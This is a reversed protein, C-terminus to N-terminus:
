VYGFYNKELGSIVRESRRRTELVSVRAGIRFYWQLAVTVLEYYGPFEETCVTGELKVM